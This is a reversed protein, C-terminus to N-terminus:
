NTTYQKSRDKKKSKTTARLLTTSMRRVAGSIKNGKQSKKEKKTSNTKSIKAHDNDNVIDNDFNMKPHVQNQKSKNPFLLALSMRTRSRNKKYEVPAQSEKKKKDRSTSDSVVKDISQTNSHADNSEEDLKIDCDDNDPDGDAYGYKVEQPQTAKGRKGTSKSTTKTQRHNNSVVIQVQSSDNSMLTTSMRRAVRGIKTQKKRVSFKHNMRAPTNDKKKSPILRQSMRRAFNDNKNNSGGTKRFESEMIQIEKRRGVILDYVFFPDLLFVADHRHRKM